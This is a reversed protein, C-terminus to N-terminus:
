ELVEQDFLMEAKEDEDESEEPDDFEIPEGGNDSDDMEALAKDIENDVEPQSQTQSEEELEKKRRDSPELFEFIDIDLQEAKEIAWDPDKEIKAEIIKAPLSFYQGFNATLERAVEPAVEKAVQQAAIDATDNRRKVRRRRRRERLDGTEIGGVRQEPENDELSVEEQQNQNQENNPQNPTPNTPRPRPGMGSQSPPSPRPVGIPPGSDDQQQKQVWKNLKLEYRNRMLEATQKQVGKFRKLIQELTDPPLQGDYDQAWSAMEQIQEDDLGYHPNTVVEKLLDM